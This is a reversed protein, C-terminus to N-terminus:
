TFPDMNYVTCTAACKCVDSGQGFQWNLFGFSGPETGDYINYCQDLVFTESFTAIPMVCTDAMPCSFVVAADASIDLGELGLFGGFFSPAAGHAWVEIGRAQDSPVFGLDGIQVDSVRDGALDLYYGEANTNISNGLVGDSDVLGNREGFDNLDTKIWDENFQWLQDYTNLQRALERAGALAAADAANQLTRRHVYANSLDIAIAAFIVLVIMAIAVLVISQGQQEHNHDM